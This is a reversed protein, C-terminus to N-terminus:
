LRRCVKRVCIINLRLREMIAKWLAGQTAAARTLSRGSIQHAGQMFAM